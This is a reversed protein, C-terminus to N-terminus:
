ESTKPDEELLKKVQQHLDKVEIRLQVLQFQTNEQLRQTSKLHSNFSTNWAREKNVNAQNRHKITHELASVRRQLNKLNIKKTCEAKSKTFQHRLVMRCPKIM